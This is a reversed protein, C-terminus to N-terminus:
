NHLPLYKRCNTAGCYCLKLVTSNDGTSIPDSEIPLTASSPNPYSLRCKKLPPSNDSDNSAYDFTLEEGPTITRSAKCTPIAFIRLAHISVNTMIKETNICRDM